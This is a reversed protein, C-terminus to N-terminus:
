LAMNTLIDQEMMMLSINDLVKVPKYMLRYRAMNTAPDLTFKIQEHMPFQPKYLEDKWGNRREIRLKRAFLKAGGFNSRNTLKLRALAALDYFPLTLISLLSKFYVPPTSKTTRSFFNKRWEEFSDAPVDSSDRNNLREDIEDMNDKLWDEDFPNFETGDERIYKSKEADGEFVIEDLGDLNTADPESPTEDITTDDVVKMDTLRLIPACAQLDIDASTSAVNAGATSSEPPCEQLTIGNELHEVDDKSGGSTGQTTKTQRPQYVIIQTSASAWQPESSASADPNGQEESDHDRKRQIQQAKCRGSWLINVKKRSIEFADKISKFGDVLTTNRSDYWNKMFDHREALRDTSHKMAISQDKVRNLEIGRANDTARMQLLQRAREDDTAKLRENEAQLKAIEAQQRRVTEKLTNIKEDSGMESFIRSRRESSRQHVASRQQQSSSTGHQPEAPPTVVPNEPTTTATPPPEKPEAEHVLEAITEQQATAPESSSTGITKKMKKKRCLTTQKMKWREAETDSPVYDEDQDTHTRRVQRIGREDIYHEYGPEPPNDDSDSDANDGGRASAGSAGVNGGDGGEGGEDDGGDDDDEDDSDCFIDLKKRGFKDEMMKKLRPEEDDSQSEDHRWKDNAPAVYNTDGLAGFM